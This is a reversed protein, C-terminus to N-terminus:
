LTVYITVLTLTMTLTQHYTRTNLNTSHNATDDYTIHILVLTLMLTLTSHNVTDYYTFYITVLTLTLTYHYTRNDFYTRTNFDYHIM